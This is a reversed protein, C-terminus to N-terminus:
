FNIVPDIPNFNEYNLSAPVGERWMKNLDVENYLELRLMESEPINQQSIESKQRFFLLFLLVSAAIAIEIIYQTIRRRKANHRYSFKQMPEEAPNRDLDGLLDNIIRLDNLAMDHIERCKQCSMLHNQIEEKRFSTVENDIYEQIEIRSLCNM